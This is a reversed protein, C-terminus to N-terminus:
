GSLNVKCTDSFAANESSRWRSYMIKINISSLYPQIEHGSVQLNTLKDPRFVPNVVDSSVAHSRFLDFLRTEPTRQHL